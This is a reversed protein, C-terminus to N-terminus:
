LWISTVYFSVYPKINQFLITDHHSNAPGDVGRVRVASNFSGTRDTVSQIQTM